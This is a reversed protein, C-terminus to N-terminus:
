LLIVGMVVGFMIILLVVAISNVWPNLVAESFVNKFYYGGLKVPVKEDATTMYTDSDIEGTQEGCMYVPRFETQKVSILAFPVLLAAVLLIFLPWVPFYGIPNLLYNQAGWELWINGMDPNILSAKAVDRVAAAFFARYLPAVGISIVFVGALLFWLAFSYGASLHEKVRGLRPLVQLLRGFWKGWFLITAASGFVIMLLILMVPFNVVSNLMLNGAKVSSGLASVSEIAIWKSLLMGFPPLFMSLIGIGMILTTVPAKEALAEMDDIERSWIIHEVTGACLFLLGKSVAHFVILLIAAAISLPTNIGACAIILGLNAITSYALVRKGTTQSIALLSAALFTFAGCLAIIIGIFPGIKGIVSTQFAPMLRVIFYVGAKVMTSSHLLASVPTPAVMAGLLWNQFPLQAAKTFGTFCLLVLPFLAVASPVGGHIVNQLSLGAAQGGHNHLYMIAYTFATGGLSNMWLATAANDLAQRTLDHGILLFSCLTTVEWFFYLLYLNNASVLGNMAGLFIVMWFLFRSQRSKQLHLHEEHDKIYKIGYVCILSGIVSIIIIMVKALSDVYFAPDVVTQAHGKFEWYALPVLQAIAFIFVLPKRLSIGVYVVYLLLMFDLVMVVEHWEMGGSPTWTFDGTRLLLFSNIALALATIIVVSARVQYQKVLYIIIASIVPLLIAIGMMTGQQM